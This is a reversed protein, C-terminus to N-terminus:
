NGEEDNAQNRDAYIRKALEIGEARSQARSAEWVDELGLASMFQGQLIGIQTPPVIAGLYGSELPWLLAVLARPIDHAQYLYIAAGISLLWKPSTFLPGISAMPVSTWRYRITAWLLNLGVFLGIVYEIPFFILLLPAIPQSMFM